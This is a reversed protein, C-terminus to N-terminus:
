TRYLSGFGVALNILKERLGPFIINAVDSFFLIDGLFNPKSDWGLVM